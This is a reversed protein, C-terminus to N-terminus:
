VHKNNNHHGLANCTKRSSSKREKDRRGRKKRSRLTKVGGKM